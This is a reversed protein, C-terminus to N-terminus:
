DGSLKSLLRNVFMWSLLMLGFLFVAVTSAYGMEFRVTGFDLMHLLLTHTSYDTSPFGTLAMNQYGVAFASSISTVAGFLLQPVLQPLTVHRLEQWRNRIGDIAAAEYYTKNMNQLGAVFSLFGQGMSLWLVVFIMVGLNYDTDTLWQIPTSGIGLQMLAGNILGNQDGSFIYSWIFYVNGVLSPAYFMLTLIARIKSPFENIFWAFVFSLIYGIPGTILAFILTNKLAIIFVEDELFLRFYNQLGVFKPFEAMNFNTFSLVMAVLVPIVTFVMFFVTFPALMLYSTRNKAIKKWLREKYVENKLNKHGRVTLDWSKIKAPLKM